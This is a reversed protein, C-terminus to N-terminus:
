TQRSRRCLVDCCDGVNWFHIQTVGSIIRRLHPKRNNPAVGKFLFTGHEPSHHDSKRSNRCDANRRHRHVSGRTATTAASVAATGTGVATATTEVAAPSGEVATHGRAASKGSIPKSGHGASCAETSHRAPAEMVTVVEPVEGKKPYPGIGIRVIRIIITVIEHPDPGM